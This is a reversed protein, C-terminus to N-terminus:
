KKLLAAIENWIRENADALALKRMNEQMSRLREPDSLLASVEKELREPTLDKEEILIAAGKEHYVLANKYQHN